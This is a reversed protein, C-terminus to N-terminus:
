NDQNEKQSPKQTRRLRSGGLSRRLPTKGARASAYYGQLLPLETGNFQPENALRSNSTNLRGKGAEASTSSCEGRDSADRTRGIPANSPRLPTSPDKNRVIDRCESAYDDLDLAKFEDRLHHLAAQREDAKPCESCITLETAFAQVVGNANVCRQSRWDLNSFLLFKGVCVIDDYAYAAVGDWFKLCLINKHADAIYISQFQGGIPDDMDFCYGLTDFENFHPRFRHADIESLHSIRRKYQTHATSPRNKIEAIKTYKGSTLQMDKGRMGSATVSRMDVLMNERLGSHAEDANWVVLIPSKTPRPDHADILRIRLMSSTKRQTSESLKEKVIRDIRNM